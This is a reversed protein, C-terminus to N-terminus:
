ALNSELVEDDTIDAYGNDVFDAKYRVIDSGYGSVRRRSRRFTMVM